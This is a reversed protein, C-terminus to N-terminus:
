YNVELLYLGHAPATQGARNRDRSELIEAMEKPERKKRGVEVLTGVITRVMQYLFRDANITFSIEDGKKSILIKKIRCSPTRPSFSKGGARFATFDHTGLLHKAGRRM